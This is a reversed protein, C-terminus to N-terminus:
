PCFHIKLRRCEVTHRSDNVRPGTRIIFESLSYFGVIVTTITIHWGKCREENAQHVGEDVNHHIRIIAQSSDARVHLFVQPPLSVEGRQLQHTDGARHFSCEIHTQSTLQLTEGEPATQATGKACQSCGTWLIHSGQNWSSIPTQNSRWGWWGRWYSRSDSSGWCFSASILRFTRRDATSWADVLPFFISM